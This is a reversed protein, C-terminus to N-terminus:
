AASRGDLQKGHEIAGFPPFALALASASGANDRLPLPLPPSPLPLPPTRGGPPGGALGAPGGGFAARGFGAGGFGRGCGGGHKETQPGGSGATGPTGAGLGASNGDKVCTPSARADGGVAGTRAGDGDVDGRSATAAADAVDDALSIGASSIGLGAGGGTGVSWAGTPPSPEGRAGVPTALM